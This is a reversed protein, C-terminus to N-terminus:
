GSAMKASAGSLDRDCFRRVGRLNRPNTTCFSARWKMSSNAPIWHHSFTGGLRLHLFHLGRKRKPSTLDVKTRPGKNEAVLFKEIPSVATRPKPYSSCLARATEGPRGARWKPDDLCSPLRAVIGSQLRHRWRVTSGYLVPARR